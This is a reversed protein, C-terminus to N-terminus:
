RWFFLFCLSLGRNVKRYKTKRRFKPSRTTNNLPNQTIEEPDEIPTNVVEEESPLLEQGYEQYSFIERPNNEISEENETTAMVKCTGKDNTVIGEGLFNIIQVVQKTRPPTIVKTTKM